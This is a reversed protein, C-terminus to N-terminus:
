PYSPSCVGRQLNAEPMHHSRYCLILLLLTKVCNAVEPIRSKAFLCIGFSIVAHCRLARVVFTCGGRRRAPGALGDPLTTDAVKECRCRPSLIQRNRLAVADRLESDYM